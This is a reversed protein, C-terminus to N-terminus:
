RKPNPRTPSTESLERPVPSSITNVTPNTPPPLDINDSLLHPLKIFKHGERLESPDLLPQKKDFKRQIKL